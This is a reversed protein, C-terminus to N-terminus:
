DDRDDKVWTCSVLGGSVGLLWCGVILLWLRHM